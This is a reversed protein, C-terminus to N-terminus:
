LYYVNTKKHPVSFVLNHEEYGWIRENTLTISTINDFTRVVQAKSTSTGNYLVAQKSKKDYTLTQMMKESKEYNTIPRKYYIDRCPPHIGCDPRMMLSLLFAPPTTDFKM